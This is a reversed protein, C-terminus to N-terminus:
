ALAEECETLIKFHGSVPWGWTCVSILTHSLTTYTHVATTVELQDTQEQKHKELEGKTERLKADLENSKLEESEQLLSPYFFFFVLYYVPHCLSRMPQFLQLISAPLFLSKHLIPCPSYPFLQYQCHSVLVYNGRKYCLYKPTIKTKIWNKNTAILHLNRYAKLCFNM